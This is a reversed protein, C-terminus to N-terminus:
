WLLDYVFDCVIEIFEFSAVVDNKETETKERTTNKTLAAAATKNLVSYNKKENTNLRAVRECSQKAVLIFLNLNVVSVLYFDFM